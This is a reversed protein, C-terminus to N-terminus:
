GRCPRAVLTCTLPRGRCNFSRIEANDINSYATGASPVAVGRAGLLRGEVARQWRRIARRKARRERAKRFAAASAGSTTIVYPQCRPGEQASAPAPSFAVAALAAALGAALSLVIRM